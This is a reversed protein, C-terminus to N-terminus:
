RRLFLMRKLNVALAYLIFLTFLFVVFMWCLSIDLEVQEMFLFFPSSPSTPTFKDRTSGEAHINLESQLNIASEKLSNSVAELLLSVSDELKAM